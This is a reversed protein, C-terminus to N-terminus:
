QALLETYRDIQALALDRADGGGTHGAYWVMTWDIAAESDLRPRWGIARRALGADVALTAAEPPGPDADIEVVPARAGSAALATAAREVIWGVTREAAPDPGFNLAAPPSPAATALHEALMLYGALPELVFQWPRTARPRRLRLPAGAAAARVLDPVLRDAAMDGGGIVNGARATALRVDMAADRAFTGTAWARAVIDQAAKSAGYPDDGGLPDDEAFARGGGDNRYVKDSTVVVVGRLAARGTLAALLNVTGQVNTAYTAAPEAYGRRVLSQAAMHIVVEPDAVAVAIRVADTDRLDGTTSTVGHWRRIASYLGGTDDPLAFGTVAAGMRELWLALWAGKFGTHGTLLVRRGRWYDPTPAGAALPTAPRM